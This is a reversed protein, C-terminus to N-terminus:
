DNGYEPLINIDSPNAWLQKDPNSLVILHGHRDFIEIGMLGVYYPDGWTSLINFVLRQGCPLQPIRFDSSDVGLVKGTSTELPDKKEFVRTEDIAAAIGRKAINLFQVDEGSAEQGILSRTSNIQSFRQLGEWQDTLSDSKKKRLKRSQSGGRRPERVDGKSQSYFTMDGGDAAAVAASSLSGRRSQLPAQPRSSMGRNSREDYSYLDPNLSRKSLKMTVKVDMEGTTNPRFNGKCQGMRLIEKSLTDGDELHDM